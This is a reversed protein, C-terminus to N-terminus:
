VNRSPHNDIGDGYQLHNLRVCKPNHCTHMVQDNVPDAPPGIMAWLVMRHAKEFIPTNDLVETVSGHADTETTISPYNRGLLM